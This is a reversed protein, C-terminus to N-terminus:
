NYVPSLLKEPSIFCCMNNDANQTSSLWNQQYGAQNCPFSDDSSQISYLTQELDKAHYSRQSFSKKKIIENLRPLTFNVSQKQLLEKRKRHAANKNILNTNQKLTEGTHIKVNNDTVINEDSDVNRYYTRKDSIPENEYNLDNEKNYLIKKGKKKPITTTINLKTYKPFDINTTNQNENLTLEDLPPFCSIENLLYPQTNEFCKSSQSSTKSQTNFEIAARHIQHSFDERKIKKSKAENRLKVPYIENIKPQKKSKKSCSKMKIFNLEKEVIPEPDCRPLDPSKDTPIQNNKESLYFANSLGSDDDNLHINEPLCNETSKHCNSQCNPFAKIIANAENCSHITNPINHIQAMVIQQEEFICESSSSKDSLNFQPSKEIIKAKRHNDSLLRVIEQKTSSNSKPASKSFKLRKKKIKSSNPKLKNLKSSVKSIIENILNTNGDLQSIQNNEPTGISTIAPSVENDFSTNTGKDEFKASNGISTIPTSVKNNTSMDFTTSTEKDEFTAVESIGISTIPPSRRKNAFKFKNSRRMKLQFHKLMSNYLKRCMIKVSLSCKCNSMKSINTGSIDTSEIQQSTRDPMQSDKSIETSVIKEVVESSVVPEKSKFMTQLLIDREKSLKTKKYKQLM